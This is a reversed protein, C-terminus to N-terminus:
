KKKSSFLAELEVIEKPIMSSLNKSGTKTILINDEIRIGIEDKAIYVGPEITIVNGEALPTSYVGADHVDLGLHHGISHYYYEGIQDESKMVGLKVLGKALKDKALTNLELWTMGPKAAQICAKNVDLVLQYLEKQRKSFVGSKPWTRTIDSNYLHYVSGCDTLVLDSQQIPQNNENYHLITANIGAAVITTFSEKTSQRILSATFDAYVDAETSAAKAGSWVDQLAQYTSGIAVEIAKVEESSKISRLSAFFSNANEIKVEPYHQQIMRSAAFAEVNESGKLRLLDLYVSQIPEVGSRSHVSLQQFFADFEANYKINSLEIGSIASAEEKTMMAGDWKAKVPDPSEMFLYSNLTSIKSQKHLLLTMSPARLGTLYYFNRSVEYPFYSDQSRHKANGAHLLLVSHQSLYSAFKVRRGLYDM